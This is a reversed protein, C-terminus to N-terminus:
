GVGNVYREVAKRPILIRNTGTGALSPLAGNDILKRVTRPDVGLAKGVQALSMALPPEPREWRALAGDIEQRVIDRLLTEFSPPEPHPLHHIAM